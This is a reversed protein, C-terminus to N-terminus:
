RAVDIECLKSKSRTFSLKRRSVFVISIANFDHRELPFEFYHADSDM